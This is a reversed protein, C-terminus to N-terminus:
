QHRYAKWQDKIKVFIYDGTGVSGRSEISVKVIAVDDAFTNLSYEDTVAQVRTDDQEIKTIGTAETLGEFPDFTKPDYTLQHRAAVDNNKVAQFVSLVSELLDGKVNVNNIHDLDLEVPKSTEANNDEEKQNEVSGSSEQTAETQNDKDPTNSQVNSPKTETINENSCAPLLLCMAALIFVLKKM